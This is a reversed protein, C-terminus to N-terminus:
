QDTGAGKKNLDELEVIKWKEEEVQEALFEAKAKRFEIETEYLRITKNCKVCRKRGYEQGWFYGRADIMELVEHDCELVILREATRKISNEHNEIKERWKKRM